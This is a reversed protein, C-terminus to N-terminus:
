YGIANDKAKTKLRNIIWQKKGGKEAPISDVYEYKISLPAIRKRLEEILCERDSDKFEDKVVLKLNVSDMAEQILQSELINEAHFATSLAASGVTMGNPLTLFSMKRGELSKLIPLTRGCPCNKDEQPYAAIDGTRYRVFPMGYNLLGTCVMEGSQGRPVPAGQSDVIEIIGVEPSLHLSGHECENVTAVWEVSGYHNFVKVGFGQELTERAQPKLYESCSIVSKLSPIKQQTDALYKAMPYLSGPYGIIYRPKFRMLEEFYFDMNIQSLHYSSMYLQKEAFNYRWFPPKTQAVPVLVKGTFNARRDNISVGASARMRTEYLAYIWTYFDKTWYVTLPSGSTGSTQEAILDSKPINKSVFQQSNGLVDKKELLPLKQLDALSRIDNPNFDLKKFLAQYYPVNKRCHRLMDRLLRLQQKQYSEKSACENAKLMYSYRQQSSNYRKDRLHYGYLSFLVNQLWVPLLDYVKAIKM